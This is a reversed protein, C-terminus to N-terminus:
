ALSSGSICAAMSSAAALPTGLMMVNEPLRFPMASASPASLQTANRLSTLACASSLPTVIQM